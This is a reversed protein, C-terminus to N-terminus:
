SVRIFLGRKVRLRVVLDPERLLSVLVLVSDNSVSHLVTGGGLFFFIITVTFREALAVTGLLVHGLVCQAVLTRM